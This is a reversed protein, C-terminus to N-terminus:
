RQKLAQYHEFKDKVFTILEMETATKLFSDDMNLFYIFEEFEQDTLNIIDYAVYNRLLEKLVGQQDDRYEQEAVWRKSQEKKSFAQYLATIPSQLVEIGTVTRTERLALASREEKIQQLSKLPSVHVAELELFKGEVFYNARMQCNSDPVVTLTIANYGRVSLSLTDGSAAYVNFSGDPQGFVGRGSSRNIVMLNYFGQPRITDSVKGTFLVQQCEQARGFTSAFVLAISLLTKITDFKCFYYRKKKFNNKLFTLDKNVFTIVKAFRQKYM